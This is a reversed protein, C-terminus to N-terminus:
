RRGEEREKEGEEKGEWKTTGVKENSIKAGVMESKMRRGNLLHGERKIDKVEDKGKSIRVGYWKVRRAGSESKKEFSKGKTRSARKPLEKREVEHSCLKMLPLLQGM